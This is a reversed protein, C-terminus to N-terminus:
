KSEDKDAELRSIVEDLEEIAEEIRVVVESKCKGNVIGDVALYLKDSIKKLEVLM